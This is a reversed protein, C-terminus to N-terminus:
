FDCTHVSGTPRGESLPWAPVYPGTYDGAEVLALGKPNATAKKGVLAATGGSGSQWAPVSGDILEGERSRDRADAANYSRPTRLALVGRLPVM